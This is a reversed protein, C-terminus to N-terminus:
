LLETRLRSKSQEKRSISSQKSTPLLTTCLHSSPKLPEQRYCPLLSLVEGNGWYQRRQGQTEKPLLWSWLPTLNDRRWLSGAQAQREESGRLQGSRQTVSCLPETLGQTSGAKYWLCVPPCSSYCVTKIPSELTTIM